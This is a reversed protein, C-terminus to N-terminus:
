LMKRVHDLQFDWTALKDRHLTAMGEALTDQNELCEVVGVRIDDPHPSTFVTGKTFYERLVRTDSTLLPKHCSLAEYGGRQMTFERTTLCMVMTASLFLREYEDKPLYGTFVVNNAPRGASAVRPRRPFSGTLYFTVGPLEKAAAVIADIPEDSSYSLPVIVTAQATGHSPTTKENSKPLTLSPPDHLAAAKVGERELVRVLQKNTVITLKSRHAFWLFAKLTWAWKPDNFVSTHADIVLCSQMVRSVVWALMVLPLPPAMVIIIKPRKRSLIGLTRITQFVYRAPASSVNGIKGVSTGAAVFVAEAGLEEALAESRGHYGIWSVFLSGSRHGPRKM